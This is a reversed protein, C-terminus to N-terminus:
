PSVTLQLYLEEFSTDWLGILFSLLFYLLLSAAFIHGAIIRARAGLSRSVYPKRQCILAAGPCDHQYEHTPTHSIPLLFVQEENIM